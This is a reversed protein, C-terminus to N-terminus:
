ADCFPRTRYFTKAQPLRYEEWAGICSGNIIEYYKRFEYFGFWVNKELGNEDVSVCVPFFAFHKKWEVKDKTLFKPEASKKTFIM